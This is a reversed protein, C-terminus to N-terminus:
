VLPLALGCPASPLLLPRQATGACLPSGTIAVTWARVPPLWSTRQTKCVDAGSAGPAPSAWPSRGGECILGHRHGPTVLEDALVPQSLRGHIQVRSPLWRAPLRTRGSNRKPPQLHSVGLEVGLVPQPPRAPVPRPGGMYSPGHDLSRVTPPGRGTEERDLECGAGGGEGERRGGVDLDSGM